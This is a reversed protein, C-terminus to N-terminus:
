SIIPSQEKRLAKPQKPNTQKSVYRQKNKVLLMFEENINSFNIQFWFKLCISLSARSILSAVFCRLPRSQIFKFLKLLITDLLWVFSSKNSAKIGLFVQKNREYWTGLPGFLLSFLTSGFFEQKEELGM